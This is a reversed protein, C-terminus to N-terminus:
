LSIRRKQPSGQGSELESRRIVKSKKNPKDWILESRLAAYPLAKLTKVFRNNKPDKLPEM